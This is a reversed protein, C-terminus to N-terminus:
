NNVKILYSYLPENESGTNNVILFNEVIARSRIDGVLRPDDDFLLESIFTQKDSLSIEIHIHAPLNSNPYGKPKITKFQFEGKSNTKFYGFLRAHKRDGENKSIHPATDSYWGESSTQYVYVLKYAIPSGAKDLVVGKVGIKTGPENDSNLKIQESKANKKIVERFATLSHLSMLSTDSLVSSITIEGQLLQNDISKILNIQQSVTSNTFILM